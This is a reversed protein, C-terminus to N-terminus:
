AAEPLAMRETLQFFPELDDFRYADLAFHNDEALRLKPNEIDIAPLIYYDFARKNEADMRIAVTIDPRLGTDFRVNWRLSGAETRQCRALVVSVKVEDNVILLDNQVERHVTGGFERIKRIADEVIEPYIKRLYRNIEQYSYDIGPDYGILQYARVLGGFRHAYAASSPLGEEEDIMIGSLKNERQYLAKLKELMEENSLRRSRALIIGQATYFLRTDIIAEFAGEARVWM